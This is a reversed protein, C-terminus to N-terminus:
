LRKSVLIIEFVAAWASLSKLGVAARDGESKVKALLLGLGKM